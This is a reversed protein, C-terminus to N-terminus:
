QIIENFSHIQNECNSLNMMVQTKPESIAAELSLQIARFLDTLTVTKPNWRSGAQMILIREGEKTRLPTPALIGNAFVKKDNAPYLNDHYQPYNKHFKFFRKM